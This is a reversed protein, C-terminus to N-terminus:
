RKKMSNILFKQTRKRKKAEPVYKANSESRKMETEEVDPANKNYFTQLYSRDKRGVLSMEEETLKPLFYSNIWEDPEKGLLIDEFLSELDENVSQKIGEKYTEM